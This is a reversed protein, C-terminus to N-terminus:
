RGGGNATLPALAEGIMAPLRAPRDAEDVCALRVFGNVLTDGDRRVVQDLEISAGGLARLTTEIVLDDDLRAPRGYDVTCRRVVFILGTESKMASHTVGLLRMMETRAREIFKLYNAYYVLGAADTDEYFVRVPFLHAGGALVGHPLSNVAAGAAASIASVTEAM